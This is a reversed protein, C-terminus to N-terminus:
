LSFESGHKKKKVLVDSVDFVHGCKCCSFVISPLESVKVDEIDSSAGAKEEDKHLFQLTKMLARRAQGNRGNVLAFMYSVTGVITPLVDLKSLVKSESHVVDKAYSLNDQLNINQLKLRFSSSHCKPCFLYEDTDSREINNKIDRILREMGSKRSAKTSYDIYDLNVLDFLIENSYQSNDLKVPIIRKHKHNAVGVERIVWPSANSNESSFFLFVSSSEIAQVIEKKFLDGSEIGVADMWVSFGCEILYDYFPQVTEKDKTSYSIFVDFM